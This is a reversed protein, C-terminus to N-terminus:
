RERAASEEICAPEAERDVGDAVVLVLGLRHAQAGRAVLRRRPADRGEEEAEQAAHHAVQDSEDVRALDGEGARRESHPHHQHGDQAPLPGQPSRDEPRRDEV